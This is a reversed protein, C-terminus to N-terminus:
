KIAGRKYLFYAWLVSLILAVPLLYSQNAAIAAYGFIITGAIALIVPASAIKLSKVIAPIALPAFIAPMINDFAPKFVPKQLFPAIQGILLMGIFLIVTTVISSVGIAITAVADAEPTGADVNCIKQANKAAPVKMNMMNGTIFGLYQGGAGIIPAYSVFECVAIPGFVALAALLTLLMKQVDISVRFAIQIGLPVAVFTLIIIITSIIGFLHVNKDYTTFVESSKM